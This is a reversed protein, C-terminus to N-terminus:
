GGSRTVPRPRPQLDAASERRGRQLYQTLSPQPSAALRLDYIAAAELVRQVYNRTESYPILEVWDVPDAAVGRPDGYERIWRSVNGPGANYAALALMPSGDYRRLLTEFYHSGLTLNYTPDSLLRQKSYPYRLQRAVRNATAPMLQMLGLAGVHSQAQPDFLSEQRAIAHVLSRTGNLPLPTDIVPYGQDILVTGDRVALKAAIVGVDPRDLEKGLEAALAAEKPSDARMTLHRVIDRLADNAGILALLRAARVLRRREFEARMDADPTIAAEAVAAMDGGLRDLALQGYYATPYRAAEAFWRQALAPDRVAEAARGAWYAGRALSVPFNVMAYMTEFHQMADVPRGLFRLAIWGALWEAEAIQARTDRPLDPTDVEALATEANEAADAADADMGDLARELSARHGDLLAHEAALRYADEVEGRRLARRAQFHRERWWRDPRLIEEGDVPVSLLLERASDHKGKVRRWYTRDYVLGADDQLHAPVAAIKRDVNWAFGILAIRAQALATRDAPLHSLMRYADSRARKWLLYDVRAVHDAETLHEGHRRLIQREESRLLRASRWGERLWAAAEASRGEEFLAEAYRLRGRATVPPKDSFWALIASSPTRSTIAEEVRRRLTLGRPWDAHAEYFQRLAAFTSDAGNVYGAWSLLDSLLEATQPGTETLDPMEARAAKLRGREALTFAATLAAGQGDRLIQPPPEPKERPVPPAMGLAPLAAALLAAALCVPFLFRMTTM